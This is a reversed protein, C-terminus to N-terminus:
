VNVPSDHQPRLTRVMFGGVSSLLRRGVDPESDNDQHRQGALLPRSAADDDDGINDCCGTSVYPDNRNDLRKKHRLAAIVVAPGAFLLALCGLTIGVITGAGLGSKNDDGSPCSSDERAYPENNTTNLFYDGQADIRAYYGMYQPYPGCDLPGFCYFYYSKAPRSLFKTSSVDYDLSERFYDLALVHDCDFQNKRHHTNGKSCHPQYQGDNPFFDTHGLSARIGFCDFWNLKNNCSNSHIVDVFVADSKDLRENSVVGIYNLAAPDLGTIRALATSMNHGAFGAVHAGLCHGIIHTNDVNLQKLKQLVKLLGATAVGVAPVHERTTTNYDTFNTGAVWDVTVVNCDFVELLKDKTSELFLVTRLFGHIIVFTKLSGVFSSNRITEPENAKLIQSAKGNKYSRTWLYFNKVYSPADHTNGTHTAPVVITDLSSDPLIAESASHQTQQNDLPISNAQVTADDVSSNLETVTNIVQTKEKETPPVPKVTENQDQLLTISSVTVNTMKNKTASVSMLTENQEKVIKSRIREDKSPQSAILNINKVPTQEDIANSALENVFKVPHSDDALVTIPLVSVVVVLLALCIVSRSGLM